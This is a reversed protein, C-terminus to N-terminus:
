RKAFWFVPRVASWRCTHLHNSRCSQFISGGILSSSM